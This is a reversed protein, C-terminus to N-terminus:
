TKKSKEKSFRYEVAKRTEFIVKSLVLHVDEEQLKNKSAKKSLELLENSQIDIKNEPDLISLVHLIGLCMHVRIAASFNIDYKEAVFKIYDEMWNSLLVQYKKTLM